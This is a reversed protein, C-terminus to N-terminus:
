FHQILFGNHKLKIYAYKGSNALLPSPLGLFAQNLVALKWASIQFLATGFVSYPYYNKLLM